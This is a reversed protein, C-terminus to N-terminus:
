SKGTPSAFEVDLIEIDATAADKVRSGHRFLCEFSIRAGPRFPAEARSLSSGLEENYAWTVIFGGTQHSSYIVPGQRWVLVNGTRDRVNVQATFQRIARQGANEIRCSVARHSPALITAETKLSSAYSVAAPTAHELPGSPELLSVATKILVISGLYFALFGAIV